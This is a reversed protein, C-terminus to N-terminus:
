NYLMFKGAIKDLADRDGHAAAGLYSMTEEQQAAIAAALEDDHGTDQMAQPYDVLLLGSVARAEAIFQRLRGPKVKTVIVPYKSIGHHGIGSADPLLDRGMDERPARHGISFALHGMVNAAIGPALNSALVIVTKRARYDYTM